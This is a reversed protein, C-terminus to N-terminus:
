GYTVLEFGVAPPEQAPEPTGGVLTSSTSSTALAYVELTPYPGNGVSSVSSTPSRIRSRPWSNPVTVPRARRTPQNSPATTRYATRTLPAVVIARVLSSM